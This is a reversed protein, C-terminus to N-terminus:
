GRERSGGKYLKEVLGEQIYWELVKLAEAKRTKLAAIGEVCAAVIAEATYPSKRHFDTGVALFNM